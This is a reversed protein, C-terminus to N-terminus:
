QRKGPWQEGLVYSYRGRKEIRADKDCVEEEDFREYRPLASVESSRRTVARSPSQSRIAGGELEVRTSGQILDAFEHESARQVRRQHVKICVKYIICLVILGAGIIIMLWLAKANPWTFDSASADYNSDPTTM